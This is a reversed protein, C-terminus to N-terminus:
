VRTRPLNILEVRCFLYSSLEAMSAGGVADRACDSEGAAAVARAAGRHGQDGCGKVPWQGGLNSLLAAFVVPRAAQEGAGEHIRPGRHIVGREAPQDSILGAIPLELLALVEGPNAELSVDHLVTRGGLSVSVGRARLGMHGDGNRM